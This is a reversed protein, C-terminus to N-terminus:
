RDEKKERKRKLNEIGPPMGYYETPKLHAPCRACVQTVWSALGGTRGTGGPAAWPGQQVPPWAGRAAGWTQAAAESM